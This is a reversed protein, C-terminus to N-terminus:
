KLLVMKRTQVFEGTQGSRRAQIQYLYVGASISKGFYDTADWVVSKHGAPQNINVIRNIERGNLNYITLTVYSEEPLDYMFTTIPNFPNPYNQRLTYKEPLTFIKALTM